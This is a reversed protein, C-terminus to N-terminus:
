DLFELSAISSAFSRNFTGRVFPKELRLQRPLSQCRSLGDIMRNHRDAHSFDRGSVLRLFIPGFQTKGRRTFAPISAPLVKLRVLNLRVLVTVRM